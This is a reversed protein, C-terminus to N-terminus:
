TSWRSEYTWLRIVEDISFISITGFRNFGRIEFVASACTELFQGSV